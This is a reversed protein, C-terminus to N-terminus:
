RLLIMKKTEIFNGSKLIYFYVGSTLEDGDFEVEYKGESLEQNVLTAVVNGITDYIKLDTFGFNLITFRIKTSPNFPNPYNQSLSFQVPIIDDINKVDVPLDSTAYGTQFLNGDTGGYWMKFLSDEVIVYPLAVAGNDWEGQDGPSLVASSKAWDFGNPSTAYGIQLFDAFNWGTYWMHYLNESYVISLPGLENSDWTGGSGPELMPHQTYRKWIKGDLSTAFLIRQTIGDHGNYWMKLTDNEYIVFPHMVEEDDWSGPEGLDIVPNLTDKIWNIGDTSTAHGIRNDDFIDIGSYWVHYINDKILVSANNIGMEDWSGSLGPELVPNNLTDKTWDIGDPSTAFGIGKDGEYWMKYINEHFLITNVISSTEDWSGSGGPILVPNNPNKMWNTQSSGISAFICILTVVIQWKVLKNKTM